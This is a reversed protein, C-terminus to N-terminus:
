ADLRGSRFPALEEALRAVVDERVAVQGGQGAERDEGRHEGEIQDAVSEPIREVGSEASADGTVERPHLKVVLEGFEPRLHGAGFLELVFCREECPYQLFCGLGRWACEELETAAAAEDSGM